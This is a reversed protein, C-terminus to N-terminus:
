VNSLVFKIKYEQTEFKVKAYIDEELKKSTGSIFIPTWVSM